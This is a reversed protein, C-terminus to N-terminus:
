LRSFRDADMAYIGMLALEDVFFGLEELARRMAQTDPHGEVEAYFRAANFDGDEM